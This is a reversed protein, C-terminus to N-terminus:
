VRKMEQVSGSPDALGVHGCDRALGLAGALTASSGLMRYPVVGHTVKKPRRGLRRYLVFGSDSEAVHLYTEQWGDRHPCWM